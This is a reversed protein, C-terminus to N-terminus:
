AYWGEGSNLKAVEAIYRQLRTFQSERLPTLVHVDSVLEDILALDGRSWAEQFSLYVPNTSSNSEDEVSM